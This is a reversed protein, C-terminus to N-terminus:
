GYIGDLILWMPCKQHWLTTYCITLVIHHSKEKIFFIYKQKIKLHFVHQWQIMLINHTLLFFNNSTTYLFKILPACIGPTIDSHCSSKKHHCRIDAHGTYSVQKMDSNQYKSNQAPKWIKPFNTCEQM